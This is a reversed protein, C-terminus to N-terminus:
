NGSLWLQPSLTRMTMQILTSVTCGNNIIREVFEIAQRGDRRFAKARGAIELCREGSFNNGGRRFTKSM